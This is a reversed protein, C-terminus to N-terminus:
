LDLVARRIGSAKIIGASVGYKSRASGDVDGMITLPTVEIVTPKVAM